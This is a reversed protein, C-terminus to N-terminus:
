LAEIATFGFEILRSEDGTYIQNTTQALRFLGKANSTIVQASNAPSSRLRPWIDVTAKGAGDSTMDSLLKYLRSEVEIYDGKLMLGTVSVPLTKINLSQGTQGAGDVEAGSVGIGRSTKGMPDGLRFTGYPGNLKLMWTTWEEAASQEMLPLSVEAQWLQGPFSQIQSAYTYPSRNVSVNSVCYLNVRRAAPTTPLELPYSITM